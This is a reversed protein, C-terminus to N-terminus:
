PALVGPRLDEGSMFDDALADLFNCEAQPEAPAAASLVKPTRRNFKTLHHQSLLQAHASGLAGTTMLAKLTEGSLEQLATEDVNFLESAESSADGAVRLVGAAHLDAGMQHVTQVGSVFRGFAQAVKTLPGSLQGNEFFPQGASCICEPDNWYALVQSSNDPMLCFPYMRLLFPVRDLALEGDTSLWPCQKATVPRLLAVASWGRQRRFAWPLELSTAALESISLQVTSFRAVFAHSLPSRWYIGACDKEVLPRQRLGDTLTM